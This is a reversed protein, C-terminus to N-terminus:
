RLWTRAIRRGAERLTVRAETEFVGHLGWEAREVHSLSSRVTCGVVPLAHVAAASTLSDLTSTALLPSALEPEAVIVLDASELAKDLILLDDLLVGTPVIRGGSAAIIAGVGGGAGSGYGRAPHGVSSEILQRRGLPRHAFAQTLLGTLATNQEEIPTLDPDVALVSDLGLLPRPTSAACVLATGSAAVLEEARTLSAPLADGSVESDAVGLLGALFGLGCDPSANHGGEVVVRSEGLATAVREGAERTSAVDTPVRVFSAQSRSAAVAEDFTPGAGFPLLVPEADACGALVGQGIEELAVGTPLLPRAGDWRGAVVVRRM